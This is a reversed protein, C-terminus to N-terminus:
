GNGDGSGSGDMDPARSILEANAKSQESAWGSMIAVQICSTTEVVHPGKLTPASSPGLTGRYTWPGPTHMPVKM